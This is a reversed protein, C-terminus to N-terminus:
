CGRFHGWLYIGRRTKAGKAMYEQIHALSLSKSRVFLICGFKHSTVESILNYFSQPKRRSIREQKRKSVEKKSFGIAMTLCGEPSGYAHVQLCRKPPRCIAIHTLKLFFSRGVGVHILM